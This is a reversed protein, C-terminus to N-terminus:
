KGTFLKVIIAILGPSVGVAIMLATFVPEFQINGLASISLVVIIMWPIAQKPKYRVLWLLTPFETSKKIEAIDEKVERIECTKCPDITEISKISKQIEEIATMMREMNGSLTSVEAVLGSYGGDLGGSLAYSNKDTAIKLNSVQEQLVAIQALSEARRDIGSPPPM